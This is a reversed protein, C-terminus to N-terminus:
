SFALWALAVISVLVETREALEQARSAYDLDSSCHALKVCDASYANPILPEQLQRLFGMLISGLAEATELRSVVEM